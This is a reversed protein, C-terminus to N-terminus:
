DSTAGSNRVYDGWRAREATVFEEASEPTSNKFPQAGGEALSAIIEPDNSVEILAASLKEVIPRPVESRVRWGFWTTARFEPLGVDRHSPIPPFGPLPRESTIMLGRIAGSELHPKYSGAADLGFTLRGALMDPLVAATGRYPVHVVGSAGVMKLLMQGAVHGVSGVGASGYTYGAPNKRLMQVFEDFTKAPSERPVGIVVPAQYAIGIFKFEDERYPMSKFIIPNFVALSLSSFLVRYGDAPAQVVSAAGINGSAGSKNEVVFPTGFRAELKRAYLRATTDAQAGPASPVVLTVLRSPYDNANEQARAERTLISLSLSALIVATLFQLVIPGRASFFGPKGVFLRASTLAGMM